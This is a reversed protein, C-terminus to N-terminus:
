KNIYDDYEQETAPLCGPTIMGLSIADDIPYVRNGFKIFDPMDEAAKGEWWCTESKISGARFIMTVGNKEALKEFCQPCIIVERNGMLENWLDNDASWVVNKGGCNQCFDEPHVDKLKELLVYESDVNYIRTAHWGDSKLVHLEVDYKHKNNYLHVAKILVPIKDTLTGFQLFAKDGIQLSPAADDRYIQPSDYSHHLEAAM